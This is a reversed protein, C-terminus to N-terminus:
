LADLLRQALAPLGAVLYRNCLVVAFRGDHGAGAPEIANVSSFGYVFGQHYFRRGSDDSIDMWGAALREGVVAPDPNAHASTFMLTAGASSLLRGDLLAHDWRALDLATSLLDGAGVVWSPDTRATIFGGANSGRAARPSPPKRSMRRTDALGLPGTIAKSLLTDLGAKHHRELLRALLYYNSNSYHGRAGPEFEREYGAIRAIMEGESIPTFQGRHFDKYDTYSGLGSSHHLLHRVTLRPPLAAEPFYPAVPADLDLLPAASLREEHARIALVATFQKSVSGIRYITDASAKADPAALGYGKAVVVRAGTGVAVSCGPMDQSAMFASVQRDVAKEVGTPADAAVATVLGVLAPALAALSAARRLSLSRRRVHAGTGAANV